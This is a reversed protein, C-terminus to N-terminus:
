TAAPNPTAAQKALEDARKKENQWWETRQKTQREADALQARLSEVPDDSVVASAPVVEATMANDGSAIIKRDNGYGSSEVRQAQTLAALLVGLEAAPLDPLLFLNDYGLSILIRNM